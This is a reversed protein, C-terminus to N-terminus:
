NRYEKSEIFGIKEKRKEKITITLIGISDKSEKLNSVYRGTNGQLVKITEPKVKLEISWRLVM